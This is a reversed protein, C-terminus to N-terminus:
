STAAKLETRPINIQDYTRSQGRIREGYARLTPIATTDDDRAESAWYDYLGVGPLVSADTIHDLYARPDESATPSRVRHDCDSNSGSPPRCSQPPPSLPMCHQTSDSWIEAPLAPGHHLLRNRTTDHYTRTAPCRAWLRCATKTFEPLELINYPRSVAKLGDPHWRLTPALASVHRIGSGRDAPLTSPRLPSAVALSSKSMPLFRLRCLGRRLACTEPTNYRPHSEVVMSTERQANHVPQAAVALVTIPLLDPRGDQYYDVLPQLCQAMYQNVVETNRNTLYPRREGEPRTYILTEHCSMRLQATTVSANEDLKQLQM